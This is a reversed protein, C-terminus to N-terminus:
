KYKKKAPFPNIVDGSDDSQTPHKKAYLSAKKAERELKNIVKKPEDMTGDYSDYNLLASDYRSVDITFPTLEGKDFLRLGPRMPAVYAGSAHSSSLHGSDSTIEKLLEEKIIKKLNM